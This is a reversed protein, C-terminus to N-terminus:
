DTRTELYRQILVADRESLEDGFGPMGTGPIGVVIASLIDKDSTVHRFVGDTLDPGKGGRGDKGHCRSCYANLLHKGQQANSRQQANTRQTFPDETTTQEKSDDALQRNSPSSVDQAHLGNGVLSALSAWLLLLRYPM